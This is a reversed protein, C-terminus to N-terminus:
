PWPTWLRDIPVVHLRDDATYSREGTYLAYGARFRAGVADRLQRLGRLESGPVRAASKVEFAFVDGDEREAVLDVEVGDRTHWQGLDLPVDLWSAQKFLEGVVFTELLHGFETMAAPDLQALRAPSVRMLRAALGSDIVHLKPRAGARARLTKGSAPLRRVLYVAELLKLYSEATSADMGASSAAAAVNLIQATQGALRDLLPALRATQRMRPALDAVDRDLSRRVYDDFWRARSTGSRQLALPFGGACVLDIYEARTTTSLRPGIPALPDSLIADLFRDRTGRIEGQSLPLVTVVHVRGTLAQSGAPLRDHRTSGTIVFRGPATRRNLEAKIADLIAPVHLYEDVCVPAPGAMFLAPDAALAERVALDDLDIAAVGHRGAVDRLLTSKGVSRPGHLALVPEEAMRDVVVDTLRRSIHEALAM